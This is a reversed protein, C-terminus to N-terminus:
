WQDCSGQRGQGWVTETLLTEYQAAIHDWDFRRVARERGSRGMEDRLQTDAALTLVAEAFAEANLPEVLIGNTGDEVVEPIATNRVSVIPKGAAMAQALVLGFTEHTSHFVFIDAMAFHQPLKEDPIYGTFLVHNELGLEGALEKLYREEGGKGGVVLTIDDYRSLVHSMSRLIIDTRKEPRLRQLSFLVLSDSDLGLARRASQGDVQPNFKDVDVGGYITRGKEDHLAGYIAFRCYDSIYTVDTALKAILRDYYKWLPPTTPGPVDRGVFTLVVPIDHRRGILVAALGTRVAYYASIVEPRFEKVLNSLAGIASLSFPPILGRLLRRGRLNALDFTDRFRVVTFPAHDDYDSADHTTKWRRGPLPTMLCVEHRAAIRRYVEHILLETGGINPLFYPSVVLIRM